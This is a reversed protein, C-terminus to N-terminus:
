QERILSNSSGTSHQPGVLHETYLPEIHFSFVQLNPSEQRLQWALADRIV